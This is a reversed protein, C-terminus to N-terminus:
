LCTMDHVVCLRCVQMKLTAVVALLGSQLGALADGIRAPDVTKLFLLSKRQVLAAKDVQKVDAVGDGDLDESDDEENAEAFKAFDAKLDRVFKLQSDLGIMRYAECAAILTTFRGGFFCMVLGILAPTLLQLKYKELQAAHRMASGYLAILYPTAMEVSRVCTMVYPAAIYVYKKASSPALENLANIYSQAKEEVSSAAGQDPQKQEPKRSRM